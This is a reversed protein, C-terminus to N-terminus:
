SCAECHRRAVDTSDDESRTSESPTSFRGEPLKTKIVNKMTRPLSITLTPKEM